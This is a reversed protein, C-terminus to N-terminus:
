LIPIAIVVFRETPNWLPTCTYLTLMPVATPAEIEVATPPVIRTEIVKYVHQKGEWAVYIQDNQKLKPLLYFTKPGSTYLFRHGVLVMNGGIDPAGTHPRHWIGQDLIDTSNSELIPADVGIVPIVIRNEKAIPPAPLEQTRPNQTQAAHVVDYEVEPFLPTLIIFLALCIVIASLGNNIWHLTRQSIM